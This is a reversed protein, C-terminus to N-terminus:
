GDRVFNQSLIGVDSESCVIRCYRKEIEFKVGEAVSASRQTAIVAAFEEPVDGRVLLEGM